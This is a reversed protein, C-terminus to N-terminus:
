TSSSSGSSSDHKAQIIYGPVVDNPKDLIDPNLGEVVMKNKVAAIPVGFQVMKFFKIFRPDENAKPGVLASKQELDEQLEIVRPEDAIEPLDISNKQENINKCEFSDKSNNVDKLSSISSLQSELILLSAEVKQMKYEFEMLRSECSQAFTNLFSVTNTVFHNIFAIIRKQHIPLIKEYDVNPDISPLDAVEM